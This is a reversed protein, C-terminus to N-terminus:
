FVKGAQQDEAGVAHYGAEDMQAAILDHQEAGHQAAAQQQRQENIEELDINESAKLQEKLTEASSTLEHVAKKCSDLAAQSATYNDQISKKKKELANINAAAEEESSFKLASTIKEISASLAKIEADAAACLKENEAIASDNRRLEEEAAPIAKELEAKRKARRAEAAINEDTLKIEAATKDAPRM